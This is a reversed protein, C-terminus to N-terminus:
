LLYGIRCDHAVEASSKGDMVIDAAVIADKSQLDDFVDLRLM